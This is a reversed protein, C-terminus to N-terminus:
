TVDSYHLRSTITDCSMIVNGVNVDNVSNHTTTVDATGPLHIL